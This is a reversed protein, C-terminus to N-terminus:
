KLGRTEEMERITEPTRQQVLERVEAFAERAKQTHGANQHREVLAGAERIRQELALAQPTM